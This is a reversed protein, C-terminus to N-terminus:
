PYSGPAHQLAGSPKRAIMRCYEFLSFHHGSDLLEEFTYQLCNYARFFRSAAHADYLELDYPVCPAHGSASKASNWRACFLEANTEFDDLSILLLCKVIPSYGFVGTGRLVLHRNTALMAEIEQAATECETADDFAILLFGTGEREFAQERMEQLFQDVRDDLTPESVKINGV